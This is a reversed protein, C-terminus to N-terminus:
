ESCLQPHADEAKLCVFCVSMGAMDTTYVTEATSIACRELRGSIINHTYWVTICSELALVSICTILHGIDERDARLLVGLHGDRLDEECDDVCHKVGQM